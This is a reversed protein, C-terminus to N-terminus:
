ILAEILARKPPSIGTQVGVVIGTWPILPLNSISPTLEVLTM